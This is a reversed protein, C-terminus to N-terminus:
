NDICSAAWQAIADRLEPTDRYCWIETQQGNCLREEKVRDFEFNHAIYQGLKVRTSANTTVDMKGAIQVLGYWKDEPFAPLAKQSQDIVANMACDILIQALRPNNHLNTSIAVISESVEVALKDPRLQPVPAIPNMEREILEVVAFQFEPSIWMALIPALKPHIWTGIGHEAIVLSSRPIGSVRELYSICVKSQDTKLWHRCERTVGSPNAESITALRYATTLATGSVMGDPRVTNSLFAFPTINNMIVTSKNVSGM